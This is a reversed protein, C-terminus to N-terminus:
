PKKDMICLCGLQVAGDVGNLNDSLILRAPADFNMSAVTLSAATGSLFSVLSIALRKSYQHHRASPGGPLLMAHSCSSITQPLRQVLANRGHQALILLWSKDFNSNHRFRLYM